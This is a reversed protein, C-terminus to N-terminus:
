KTLNTEQKEGYRLEQLVKKLKENVLEIKMEFNYGTSDFTKISAKEKVMNQVIKSYKNGEAYANAENRLEYRCYQLFDIKQEASLTSLFKDLTNSITKKDIDLKTYLMMEYIIDFRDKNNTELIKLIRRPEKPAVIQSFYHYTEHLFTNISELSLKGNENTPLYITWGNINVGNKSNLETCGYMGEQVTKRVKVSNKSPITEKLSREFTDCSIEDTRFKKIIKEFFTANLKKALEIKELDTGRSYELPLKALKTIRIM